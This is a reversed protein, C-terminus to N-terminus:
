VRSGVGADVFLNRRRFPIPSVRLLHFRLSKLPSAFYPIEMPPIERTWAPPPIKKQGAAQEVMAAVYNRHFPSLGRLDAHAVAGALFAPAISSLFDNLEALAFRMDADSASRLAQLIGAFREQEAPFVRSLVYASVDLGAARALRRLAAKESATVRIQLQMSKTAM